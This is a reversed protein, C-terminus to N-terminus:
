GDHTRFDGDGPAVREDSEGGDVDDPTPFPEGNPQVLPTTTTGRLREARLAQCRSRAEDTNLTRLNCRDCTLHVHAGWTGYELECGDPMDM